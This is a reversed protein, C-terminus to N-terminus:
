KSRLLPKKRQWSWCALHFSLFLKEGVNSFSELRINNWLFAIKWTANSEVDHFVWAWSHVFIIRSLMPFLSSFVSMETFYIRVTSLRRWWPSFGRSFAGNWLGSPSMEFTHFTAHSENLRRLRGDDVIELSSTLMWFRKFIKLSCYIVTLVRLILTTSSTTKTLTPGQADM